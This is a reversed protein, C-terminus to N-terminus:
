LTQKSTVKVFIDQALQDTSLHDELSFPFQEDTKWLVCVTNKLQPQFHLVVQIQMPNELDKPNNANIWLSKLKTPSAIPYVTEKQNKFNTGMSLKGNQYLLRVNKYTVDQELLGCLAIAVDVTYEWLLKLDEKIAIKEM